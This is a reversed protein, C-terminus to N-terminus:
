SMISLVGELAKATHQLITTNGTNESPKVERVNINHLDSVYRLVNPLKVMMMKFRSTVEMLALKEAKSHDM